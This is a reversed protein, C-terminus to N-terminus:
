NEDIKSECNPCFKTGEEIKANCNSCYKDKALKEGCNACFKNKANNEAGCKACVIKKSDRKGKTIGSTIAEAMGGVANNVSPSVSDAMYNVTDGVVPAISSAGFSAIERAHAFFTAYVGYGFLGVGIALGFGGVIFMTMSSSASTFMGQPDDLSSKGFSSFGIVLMVLGAVALCAGVIMLVIGVKKLKSKIKQHNEENVYKGNLEAM